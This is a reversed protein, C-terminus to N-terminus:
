ASVIIISDNVKNWCVLPAEYNFPTCFNYFCIFIKKSLRKEGVCQQLASNPFLLIATVHSGTSQWQPTCPSCQSVSSPPTLYYFACVRKKKGLLFNSGSPRERQRLPHPLVHFIMGALFDKETWSDTSFQWKWVCLWTALAKLVQM